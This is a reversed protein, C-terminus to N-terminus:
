NKSTQKRMCLSIRPRAETWRVALVMGDGSNDDDAEPPAAEDTVSNSAKPIARIFVVKVGNTIVVVLVLNVNIGEQGGTGRGGGNIGGVCGRPPVGVVVDVEVGISGDHNNSHIGALAAGEGKELLPHGMLLVNIGVVDQLLCPPVLVDQSWEAEGGSSVVILDSGVLVVSVEVQGLIGVGDGVKGGDGELTPISIGNLLGELELGGNLLADEPDVRRPFHGLLLQDTIPQFLAEEGAEV